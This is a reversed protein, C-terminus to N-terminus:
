ARVAASCCSRCVVRISTACCRSVGCNRWREREAGDDIGGGVAWWFAPSVSMKLNSPVSMQVNPRCFNLAYDVKQFITSQRNIQLRHYYVVPHAALRDRYPRPTGRAGRVSGSTCSERMRSGGLITVAFRAAEGYANRRRHCAKGARHGARAISARTRRPGTRREM